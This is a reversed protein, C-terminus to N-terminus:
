AQVCLHDSYITFNRSQQIEGLSKWGENKVRGRWDEMELVSRQCKYAM